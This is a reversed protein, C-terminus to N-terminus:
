KGDDQTNQQLEAILSLTKDDKVTASRNQIVKEIFSDWHVYLCTNKSPYLQDFDINIQFLFIAVIYWNLIYYCM